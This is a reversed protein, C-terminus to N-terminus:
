PTAEALADSSEQRMGAITQPVTGDIETYKTESGTKFNVESGSGAPAPNRKKPLSRPRRFHVNRDPWFQDAAPNADM